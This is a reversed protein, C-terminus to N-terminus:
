TNNQTQEDTVMLDNPRVMRLVKVFFVINNIDQHYILYKGSNEAISM